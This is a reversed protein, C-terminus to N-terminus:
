AAAAAVNRPRASEGNRRYLANTKGTEANVFVLFPQGSVKLQLKAEEVTMKKLATKVPDVVSSAPTEDLEFDENLREEDEPLERLSGGGNQAKMVRTKAKRMQRAIKDIAEDMSAYCDTTEAEAELTIHNSCFLIIETHHRIDKADLIVKAEIIKPYDLHLGEIKKRAYEKIASTLEMHRGTVTIPLNVNRTQM